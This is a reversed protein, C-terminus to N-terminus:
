TRVLVHVAATATQTGISGGGVHALAVNARHVQRQGAQGRLQGVLEHVQGLGTAGVPHGRAVLGGSPNIPLPGGIETHGTQAWREEDGSRCLGLATWAVMEGATTADHLEVVDLDDPGLGSQEYASVAALTAAAPGNEDASVM